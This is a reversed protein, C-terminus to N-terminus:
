RPRMLTVGAALTSADGNAAIYAQLKKINELERYLRDVYENSPVVEGDISVNLELLSQGDDTANNALITTIATVRTKLNELDTAM